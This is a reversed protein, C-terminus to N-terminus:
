AGWPPAPRPPRPPSPRPRAPRRPTAFPRPRADSGAGTCARPGPRRERPVVPADEPRDVVRAVRELGHGPPRRVPFLDAPGTGHGARRRAPPRGRRRLVDRRADGSREAHSSTTWPRSGSRTGPTIGLKTAGIVKDEDLLEQPKEGDYTITSFADAVLQKKLGEADKTVISSRCTRRGLPAQPDGRERRRAHAEGLQERM